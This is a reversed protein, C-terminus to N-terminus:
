EWACWGHVGADGATSEPGTSEIGRHAPNARRNNYNFERM